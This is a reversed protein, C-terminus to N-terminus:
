RVSIPPESIPMSVVATIIPLTREPSYLHVSLPASIPEEIICEAMFSKEYSIGPVLAPLLAVSDSVQYMEEDWELALKLLNTTAGSTAQVSVTLKFMPGIGQVKVGLQFSAGNLASAPALSATLAKVYERATHVRVLQLDGQFSHHMSKAHDKERQSQDLYLRSKTPVNIRIRQEAPAGVASKIAKFEAGKRLRRLTFGGTETVIALVYTDRWINGFSLMTVCGEISFSDILETSNYMKVQGDALGICCARLLKPKYWVECLCTIRSPQKSQWAIKGKTTYSYLVNNECAIMLHKQVRTIALALSHLEFPESLEGNKVTYVLKDRTVVTIRYDMEYVGSACACTIASNVSINFLASFDSPHLVFIQGDETCIIPCQPGDGQSKHALSTLCTFVGKQKVPIERVGELFAPRQDPDMALYTMSRPCLKAGTSRLAKLDDFLQQPNASENRANIWLDREAELVDAPPLTFRFFPRLNKFVFLGDSAAVAVMPVTSEDSITCMVGCPVDALVHEEILSSGSYVKLLAKHQEEDFHAVLIKNEGQNHVDGFAICNPLVRLGAVPDSFVQQWKSKTQVSLLQQQSVAREVLAGTSM